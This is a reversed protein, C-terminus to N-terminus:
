NLTLKTNSSCWRQIPFSLAQEWIMCEMNIYHKDALTDLLLFDLVVSCYPMMFQKRIIIIHSMKQLSYVIINIYIVNCILIQM